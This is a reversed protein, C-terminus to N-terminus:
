FTAESEIDNMLPSKIFEWINNKIDCSLHTISHYVGFVLGKTVYKLYNINLGKSSCKKLFYSKMSQIYEKSSESSECDNLVLDYGLISQYLKGYDYYIDGSLTLIDEVSGKMDVFKYFGDYTLIINSFWFDGHIASSVVPDFHREIGNIIDKFVDDADKFYYDYKNFRNTLKRIYNNKINDNTACIAHKSDDKYFHLNNLIDFLKDIHSHTLLCNKYLYYLPIGEIYEIKLDISNTDKVYTYDILRPFYNEFGRPINQYYFLEGKLIDHPGTKVIYEDCRRIKNYKNNNIKNPIFQQANNTDHFLGFYSIDNIYPNIARDDIYIDAIPKGFILEDYDINLRELTDITVSAIDKIVKGVNGNHTKMRRATYIIIEHGENKLKKLLSINSNIPKVTSYDGVITPYTVLTNDLDFCIRLKDKPVTYNNAFIDKFTGLHNTEEIYFPEVNEGNKIIINYLASLYYETSSNCSLENDSLLLQAYKLFNKTNKFGYFGCCYFDSIKHKEEIATLQNNEFKIFSLDTIQKNSNIAYGIFDNEFVPMHKTINHINDNDIFVINEDDGIYKIFKNIGVFATEVAGRTLYDIQSFHLKKSKCKNILIEQFNYEDLFINYIIFIENSPINDIVYEIMHRGQILNLPKPLSYNTLRKGIGGCLIIYKM